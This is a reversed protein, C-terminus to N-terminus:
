CEACGSAGLASIIARTSLVSEEGKLTELLRIGQWYCGNLTMGAVTVM